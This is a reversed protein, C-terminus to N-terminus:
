KEINSGVKKCNEHKIVEELHRPNFSDGCRNCYYVPFEGSKIEKAKVKMHSILIPLINPKRYNEGKIIKGNEDLPQKPNFKSMNSEHVEQEIEEAPIGMVANTGQIAMELDGLADAASVMDVNSDEGWAKVGGWSNNFPNVEIHISVCLAECLEVFEDAIIAIRSQRIYHTSPNPNTLFPIGFKEHLEKIREISHM